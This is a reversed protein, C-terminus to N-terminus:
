EDECKNKDESVVKEKEKMAKGYMIQVVKEIHKNSLGVKKDIAEELEKVAERDIRSFSMPDLNCLAFILLSAQGRARKKVKRIKKKTGLYSEEIVTEVEEYEYGMAEEYLSNKLNNVLIERSYELVKMLEPRKEQKYKYFSTKGIGLLTIIEDENKGAQRWAKIRELNPLVHTEYKSKCGPM